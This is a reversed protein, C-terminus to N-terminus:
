TPNQPSHFAAAQRHVLWIFPLGISLGLAALIYITELPLRDLLAYTALPALSTGLDASTSLLGLFAGSDHGPNIDRALPPTVTVVIASGSAALAVGALLGLSNPLAVIITLGAAGLFIGWAITQWRRQAYFAEDASHNARDSLSGALPAVLAAVVARLALLAGGASAVPIVWGRFQGGISLTDGYHTQLYLSLTSLLIGDGIFSAAFYIYNAAANQPHALTRLSSLRDKWNLLAGRTAQSLSLRPQPHDPRTEPLTFLGLLFGAASIAACTALASTFGFRDSLV